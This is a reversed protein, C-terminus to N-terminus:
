CWWRSQENRSTKGQSHYGSKEQECRKSGDRVNQIGPVPQPFTTVLVAVRNYTKNPAAWSARNESQRFWGSRAQSDRIGALIRDPYSFDLNQFRNQYKWIFKHYKYLFVYCLISLQFQYGFYKLFGCSIYFLISYKYAVGCSFFILM